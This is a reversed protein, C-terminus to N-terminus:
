NGIRPILTRQVVKNKSNLQSIIVKADKPYEYEVANKMIGNKNYYAIRLPKSKSNFKVTHSGIFTSDSSFYQSQLKRKSYKFEYFYYLNELQDMIEVSPNLKKIMQQQVDLSLNDPCKTVLIIQARKAGLKSERLWGWPILHDSYYPNSFTTTLITLRPKVYRHQLVDDLLILNPQPYIQSLANM